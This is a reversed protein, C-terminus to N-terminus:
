WRGISIDRKRARDVVGVVGDFGLSLGLLFEVVQLSSRLPLVEAINCTTQLRLNICVHIPKWEQTTVSKNHQLAICM